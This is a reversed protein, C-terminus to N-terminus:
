VGILLHKPMWSRTGLAGLYDRARKSAVIPTFGSNSDRQLGLDPKWACYAFWHRSVKKHVYAALSKMGSPFRQPDGQLRGVKDRSPAMWCDDLNLYEFGAHLLGNSIIADAAQRVNEENLKNCNLDNWTNYGLPPTLGVGNDLARATTIVLVLAFSLAHAM